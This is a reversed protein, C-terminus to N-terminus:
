HFTADDAPGEHKVDFLRGTRVKGSAVATPAPQASGAPRASRTALRVLFGHILRPHAARLPAASLPRAIRPTPKKKAPGAPCNKRAMPVDGDPLLVFTLVEGVILRVRLFPGSRAVCPPPARGPGISSAPWMTVPQATWRALRGALAETVSGGDDTRQRVYSTGCTHSGAPTASGPTTGNVRQACLTRYPVSAAAGYNSATGYSTTRKQFPLPQQRTPHATALSRM